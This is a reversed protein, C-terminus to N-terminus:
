RWLTITGFLTAVTRNPTKARRRYWVGQFRIRPPLDRRDHPELHNVIWEVIIRGVERLLEHLQTEFQHCAHPTLDARRFRVLLRGFIPLASTQVGTVSTVRIGVHAPLLPRVATAHRM